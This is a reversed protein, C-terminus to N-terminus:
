RLVESGLYVLRQHRGDRMAGPLRVPQSPTFLKPDCGLVPLVLRLEALEDPKPLAFWAHLSKGATDVIAALKLGVKDRLWRFVAGVEDKGLTDSEVVLFRRAVVTENSRRHTGPQFTSPCILPGAVSPQQLWERATRFCRQHQPSGSDCKDGIWVVDDPHFRGLLLRWHDTAEDPVSAPSSAMIAALPWHNESLLRARGAFAKLRIGECRRAEALRQKQEATLRKPKGPASEGAGSLARRLEHNARKIDEGCSAHVCHLTPVPELYVICDRHGNPTTHQRSGPCECYGTTEDLWAIEGLVREAIESITTATTEASGSPTKIDSM